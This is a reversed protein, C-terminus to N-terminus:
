KHVQMQRRRQKQRSKRSNGKATTEGIDGKRPGGTKRLEEHRARKAAAKANKAARRQAKALKKAAEEAEIKLEAASKQPPEPEVHVMPTAIIRNAVDWLYAMEKPGIPKNLEGLWQIWRSDESGDRHKWTQKMLFEKGWKGLIDYVKAYCVRAADVHKGPDAKATCHKMGKQFYYGLDYAIKFESNEWIARALSEVRGLEKEYEVLIAHIQKNNDM